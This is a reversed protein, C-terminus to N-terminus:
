KLPSLQIQRGGKIMRIAPSSLGKAPCVFFRPIELPLPMSLLPCFFAFVGFRSLMELM